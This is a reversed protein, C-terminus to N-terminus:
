IVDTPHLFSYLGSVLLSVQSSGVYWAPIEPLSKYTMPKWINLLSPVLSLSISATKKGM